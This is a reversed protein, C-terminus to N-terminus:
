DSLPMAPRGGLRIAGPMRTAASEGAVLAATRLLRMANEDRLTRLASLEADEVALADLDAARLPPACAEPSRMWDLLRAVMQADLDRWRSAAAQLRGSVADLNGPQAVSSAVAAADRRWTTEAFFEPFGQMAYDSNLRAMAPQPLVPVLAALLSMQADARLNAAARARRVMGQVEPMSPIDDPSVDDRRGNRRVDVVFMLFDKLAEFGAQRSDLAARELEEAHATALALVAAQRPPDAPTAAATLALVDVQSLWLPGVLWSLQFRRWPVGARAVALQTRTAVLRPDDSKVGRAAALDNLTELVLAGRQEDATQLAQMYSALEREFRAPDQAAQEGLEQARKEQDKLQADQLKTLTDAREEYRQWLAEIVPDGLKAGLASALRDFDDRAPMPGLLLQLALSRSRDMGPEEPPPPQFMGRPARAMLRAAQTDGVLEQLATRGDDRTANMLNRLRELREKTLEAEGADTARKLAAQAVEGAKKLAEEDAATNQPEEGRLTQEARARQVKLQAEAVRDSAARCEALAASLKPCQGSRVEPMAEAVETYWRVLHGNGEAPAAQVLAESSLRAALEPPLVAQWAALTRTNLADLALLAKTIRARSARVAKTLAAADEGNPKTGARVYSDIAQDSLGAGHLAALRDSPFEVLAQALQDLTNALELRYAARLPELQARFGPAATGVSPLLLLAQLETDLNLFGQGVARDDAGSIVKAAREVGRRTRAREVWEPRAPVASALDSFFQEDLARVRAAVSQYRRAFRQLAEPDNLWRRSRDQRVEKVFPAITTRRLEDYSALYPDLAADVVQWEELSLPTPEELSAAVLEPTVM